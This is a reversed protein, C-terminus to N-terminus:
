FIERTWKIRIKKYQHKSKQIKTWIKNYKLNAILIKKVKEKDNNTKLAYSSMSKSKIMQLNGQVFKVNNWILKFVKKNREQHQLDKVQNVEQMQLWLKVKLKLM